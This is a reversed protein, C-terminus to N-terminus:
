EVVVLFAFCLHWSPPLTGIGQAQVCIEPTSVGGGNDVLWRCTVSGIQIQIIDGVSCDGVSHPQMFLAPQESSPM